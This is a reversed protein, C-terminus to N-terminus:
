SSRGDLIDILAGPLPRGVRDFVSGVVHTKNTPRLPLECAALMSGLAGIILLHRLCMTEELTSSDSRRGLQAGGEPCPDL